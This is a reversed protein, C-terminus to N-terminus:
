RSLAQDVSDSRPDEFLNRDVHRGILFELM